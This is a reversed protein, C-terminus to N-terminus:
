CQGRPKRFVASISAPILSALQRPPLEEDIFRLAQALPMAQMTRQLLALPRRPDQTALQLFGKDLLRWHWPSQRSPPLPRNERWLRALHKSESAIRVVGYGASPKVLGRKAGILIHQPGTTQSPAFGLPVCGWEAHTVTFSAEPHCARLYRLLPAQDEQSVPGFSASDLLAEVPTLPLLYAFSVEDLPDFLTATSADFVARDANVRIGTGSVLARPAQPSPYTPFVEPASDFVWSTHIAGADTVIEYRRDGLRTISRVTTHLWQLPTERLLAGLHAFVDASYVLRMTYPAISQPPMGAVEAQLWTGVAFRDYPTQEYSWYSWHTNPRESLPAPDIVAVREPLTQRLEKLLSLAALGGGVFVVDYEQVVM